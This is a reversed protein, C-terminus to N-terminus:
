EELLEIYKEVVVKWRFSDAWQVANVSFEQYNELIKGVSVFVKEPDNKNVLLGSYGDNVAEEIGCGKSGISPVGLSNGELLAIGFGEVDGQNTNESLMLFIDAKRLLTCKETESVAGCFIIATEVKLERALNQLSDKETPIGVIYYMLDPYKELLLPLAKIVNQQGKRETVNGVTILIPGGETRRKEKSTCELRFGNHIVYVDELISPKLLSKTFNSVAIIKDFRSLSFDTLKRLGKNPLLLESGHVVAIYNKKNFFSLFGGLWLPFKGSAIIVESRRRLLFAKIIRHLYSFFIIKKRPIRVVEFNLAADFSSEEEGTRSRRDALVTVAFGHDALGQALNFAHNGIGGPQPPFESTILTIRNSSM